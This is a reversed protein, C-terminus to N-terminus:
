NKMKCTTIEIHAVANKHLCPLFMSAGSRDSVSSFRSLIFFGLCRWCGSCLDSRSRFSIRIQMIQPWSPVLCPLMGTGVLIEKSSRDGDQFVECFLHLGSFCSRCSNPYCIEAAPWTTPLVHVWSGFENGQGRGKEGRTPKTGQMHWHLSCRKSQRRAKEHKKM